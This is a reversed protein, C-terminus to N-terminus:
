AFYKNSSMGSVTLPTRTMLIGHYASSLPFLRYAAYRTDRKVQLIGPSHTLKSIYLREFYSRLM